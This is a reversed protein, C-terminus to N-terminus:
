RKIDIPAFVDASAPEGVATMMWSRLVSVNIEKIDAVLLPGVGIM